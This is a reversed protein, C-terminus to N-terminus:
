EDTSEDRNFSKNSVGQENYTQAQKWVQASIWFKPLFFTHLCFRSGARAQIDPTTQYKVGQPVLIEKETKQFM